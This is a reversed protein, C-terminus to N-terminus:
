IDHFFYDNNKRRMYGYRDNKEETTNNKYSLGIKNRSNNVDRNRKTYYDNEGLPDSSLFRKRYTGENYDNKDKLTNRKEFYNKNLYTKERERKQIVKRIGKMRIKELEQLFEKERQIKEKKEQEILKEMEKRKEEEEEEKKKKEQEEKLYEEYNKRKQEFLKKWKELLDNEKNIDESKENDIFEKNFQDIIEKYYSVEKNEEIFENIEKMLSTNLEESENIEKNSEKTENIINNNINNKNKVKENIDNLIVNELQLKNIDIFGMSINFLLDNNIEYNNYDFNIINLIKNEKEKEKIQEEEKKESNIKLNPIFSTGFPSYTLYNLKHLNQLYDIEEDLLKDQDEKDKGPENLNLVSSENKTPFTSYEELSLNQLIKDRTLEVKSKKSNEENNQDEDLPSYIDNKYLIDDEKNSYDFLTDLIKENKFINKEGDM